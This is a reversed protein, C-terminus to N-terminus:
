SGTSGTPVTATTSTPAWTRSAAAPRGGSMDVNQMMKSADMAVPMLCKQDGKCAEQKAKMQAQFAEPSIKKQPSKGQAQAAAAITAGAAAVLAALVIFRGSVM